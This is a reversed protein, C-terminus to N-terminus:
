DVDGDMFFHEIASHTFFMIDEHEYFGFDNPFQNYLEPLPTGYLDVDSVDCNDFFQETTIETANSVIDTLTNVDWITSVCTCIFQMM